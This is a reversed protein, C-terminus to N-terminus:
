DHEIVDGGTVIREAGQQGLRLFGEETLGNFIGTQIEGSALRVSISDGARHILARRWAEIATEPDGISRTLSTIYPVVVAYCWEGHPAEDIHASLATAPQPADGGLTPKAQLNVGLGVTAWYSTGRRAHIL